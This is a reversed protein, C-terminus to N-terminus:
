PQLPQVEKRIEDAEDEALDIEYRNQLNLWFAVTTGFFAALRNATDATISRQGHVLENIRRKDVHLRRALESQSLDYPELFEEKLITGPHTAPIKEKTAM